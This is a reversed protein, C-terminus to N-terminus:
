GRRAQLGARRDGSPARASVSEFSPPSKALSPWARDQVSIRTVPLPWDIGLGPDDYRLGCAAKPEYFASVLYNIETDPELTQFGHAFYEPVYVMRLLRPSLEISIWQLYSPSDTRLDVIVDYIAGRICRVLKAETHPAAQYHLGRMTGAVPNISANGQVFETALGQRDFENRCWARVFDGRDDSYPELDVVFAGSLPLEHFIM